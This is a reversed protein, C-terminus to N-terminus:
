AEALSEALKRRLPKGFPGRPIEPVISIIAPRFPGKMKQFHRALEAMGPEHPRGAIFLAIRDFGGQTPLGVVTFETDPPMHRSLIDEVAEPPLRDGRLFIMESDRGVLRIEGDPAVFGMDRTRTWGDRFSDATLSDDRFYTLSAQGVVRIALEGVQGRPLEQGDPDVVRVETGSVPRGISGQDTRQDAVRMCVAAGGETLGYLSIVRARPFRDSLQGAVAAPVPGGGVRIITVREAWDERSRMTATVARASYPSLQLESPRRVRCADLLDGTTAGYLSTVGRALHTLMVGHLGGSVTIPIGTHGVVRRAHSAMIEPRVLRSWQAHTSAVPKPPGTTGSTFVIDLLDDPSAASEGIHGSAHMLEALSVTMVAREREGVTILLAAGARDVADRESAEGSVMVAAAGLWVVSLYALTVQRWSMSATDVAVFHGRRVGRAQLAYSGRMVRDILGAATLDANASDALVVLDPRLRACAMVIEPVTRWQRARSNDPM